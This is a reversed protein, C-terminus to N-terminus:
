IDSISLRELKWDQSRHKLHASALSAGFLVHTSGYSVPAEPKHRLCLPDIYYKKFAQPKDFVHLLPWSHRAIRAYHLAHSHSQSSSTEAADLFGLIQVSRQVKQSFRRSPSLFLLLPTHNLLLSRCVGAAVLGRLHSVVPVIKDESTDVELRQYVEVKYQGQLAREERRAKGVHGRAVPFAAEIVGPHTVGRGDQRQQSKVRARSALPEAVDVPNPCVTPQPEVVVAANSETPEKMSAVRSNGNDSLSM